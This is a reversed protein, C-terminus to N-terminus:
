SGGSPLTKRRRRIVLELDLAALLKLLTGLRTGKAGQEIQSVISQKVGSKEGVGSQTLEAQKRFRHIANGLQLSDRAVLELEDAQSLGPPKPSKPPDQRKM